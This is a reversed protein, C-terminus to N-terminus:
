VGGQDTKPHYIVIAKMASADTIGHAVETQAVLQDLVDRPYDQPSFDIFASTDKNVKFFPDFRGEFPDPRIAIFMYEGDHEIASIIKTGPDLNSLVIKKAADLTIM